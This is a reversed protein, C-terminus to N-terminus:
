TIRGVERSRKLLVTFKGNEDKDSACVAIEAFLAFECLECLECIACM